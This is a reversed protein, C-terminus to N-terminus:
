KKLLKSIKAAVQKENPKHHGHEHEAEDKQEAHLKELKKQIDFLASGPTFHSQNVDKAGLPVGTVLEFAEWFYRVPYIQLYGKSVASRIEKHLMLNSTNQQPILVGYKKGKGLLRCTKYFGEIKENIGGVPQVDGLQNLSGTVAFNQNVPIGGLSSLVVILEAVTASDGDIMGYSQEFCVSASFGLSTERALLASLFGSLIYIGKDYINGSLKSAREINFIGEENMSTTCTIRGVRGFTHDGYDYVTLGNVQGTRVGDVSVLYDKSRVSDMLQEEILDVRYAQSEIAEEIHTRKISRASQSRAVYDAEILLDKLTGFQTSLYAHDEVLRSGYEIVAAIASKDVNLLDESQSRTKLFTAYSNINAKSREMKYNFDAKVKFIKRFEDDEEYLIHYIDNSGIIIVKLDLPIPEPRLGSTPLLSYQEGMDEIFGKQNKLTRKLFEWISDSGSRFIDAANLVLYGGNARHVAGAKLMTFDTRYMGYEVNKEIRGFLNYYTPNPELIIPTKKTGTNDVFVNVRYKIFKDRAEHVPRPAEEGQGGEDIEDLDVFDLLNEVIHDGVDHLYKTVEEDQSYIEFLDSLHSEVIQKGLNKRLEEIYDNNELEIDRVKRAFDLIFPELESRKKEIASREEADLKSYEKETVPRGHVIPITEIGLRSSKIMFGMRKAKKELDSYLKAKRDNSNSLYSNAPNEYEESHLVQTVDDRLSKVLHDMRKKFIRGEGAPLCIARPTEMDQFDNVYIWDEPAEGGKKSWEELFTRIVSTKGTGPSGAVYINYGPKRIGLGFNIAKVAREQSIIDHSKKLASKGPLKFAQEDCTLYVAGSDLPSPLKSPKPRPIKLSTGPKKQVTKKKTTKKLVSKKKSTSKKSIKGVKKGTKKKAM